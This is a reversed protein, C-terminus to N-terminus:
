WSRVCFRLKGEWLTDGWCDVGWLWRRWWEYDAVGEFSFKLDGIPLM